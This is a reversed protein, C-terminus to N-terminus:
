FCVLLVMSRRILVRERIYAGGLLVFILYASVILHAQLENMLFSSNKEFSGSWHELSNKTWTRKSQFKKNSQM